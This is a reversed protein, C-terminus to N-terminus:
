RRTTGPTAPPSRATPAASGRRPASSSTATTASRRAARSAPRTASSSTTSRPTAGSRRSAAPSRTARRRRALAMPLGTSVGGTVVCDAVISGRLVMNTGHHPDLQGFDGFVDIGLNALIQSNQHTSVDDGVRLLVGGTEAFIAGSPITRLADPDNGPETTHDEAFRAVGNRLLLLHEDLDGSERVTLRIDGTTAHALM